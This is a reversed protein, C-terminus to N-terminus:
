EEVGAETTVINWDDPVAVDVLLCQHKDKLLLTIDPRNHAVHRDTVTTGDWVLKVQDNKIVPLPQHENGNREVNLTM